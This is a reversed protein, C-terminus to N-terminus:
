RAGGRDEAAPLRHGGVHIRRRRRPGSLHRCGGGTVIAALLDRRYEEIDTSFSGQEQRVRLIDRLTRGSRMFEAPLGSLELYRRNCLVVRESGDFMVLGQAMNNLAANFRLSQQRLLEAKQREAGTEASMRPRRLLATLRRFIGVGM